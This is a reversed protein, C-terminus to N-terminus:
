TALCNRGPQLWGCGAVGPLHKAFCHRKEACTQIHKGFSTCSLTVNTQIGGSKAKPAKKAAVNSQKPRKAASTTKRGKKVATEITPAAAEAQGATTRKVTWEQDSGSDDGAGSELDRVTFDIKKRKHVYSQDTARTVGPLEQDGVPLMHSRLVESEQGRPRAVEACEEASSPDLKPESMPPENSSSDKGDDDDDGSCLILDPSTCREAARFRFKFLSM